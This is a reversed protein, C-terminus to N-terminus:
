RYIIDILAETESMDDILIEPEAALLSERPAYGTCVAICRAGIARSCTVDHPTDGIVFVQEGHIKHGAHTEAKLLCERAIDDRAEHHDGYGGFAFYRDIQFHALKAFAGEEINGTLLGIGVQGDDQLRTLLELVGPLMVGRSKPLHERLERLYSQYLSLFNETLAPVQNLDFLEKAISRDTRGGYDIEVNPDTVGFEDRLAVRLAEKGAGNTLVLTGDIDFFVFKKGAAM